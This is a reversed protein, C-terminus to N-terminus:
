GIIEQKPLSPLLEPALSSGLAGSVASLPCLSSPNSTGGGLTNALGGVTNGLTSTVVKAAGTAGSNTNSNNDNM